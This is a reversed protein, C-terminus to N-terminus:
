KSQVYTFHFYNSEKMDQKESKNPPNAADCKGSNIIKLVSALVEQINEGTCWSNHSKWTENTSVLM